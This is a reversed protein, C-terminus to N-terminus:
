KGAIEARTKIVADSLDRGAQESRMRWYAMLKQQEVQDPDM